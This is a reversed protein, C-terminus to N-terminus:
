AQRDVARARAHDHEGRGNEIPTLILTGEACEVHDHATIGKTTLDIRVLFVQLNRTNLSTGEVGHEDASRPNLRHALPDLNDRAGAVTAVARDDRHSAAVDHRCGEM